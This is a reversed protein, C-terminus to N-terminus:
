VGLFQLDVNKFDDGFEARVLLELLRNNKQMIFDCFYKLGNFDHLIDVCCFETIEGAQCSWALRICFLSYVFFIFVLM